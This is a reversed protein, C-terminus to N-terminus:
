FVACFHAFREPWVFLRIIQGSNLWSDGFSAPIDTGVYDLAMGSIVDGGAEPQCKDHNSTEIDFADELKRRSSYRYRKRILRRPTEGLGVKHHIKTKMVALGPNSHCWLLCFCSLYLVLVGLATSQSFTPPSNDEQESSGVSGHTTLVQPVSFNVLQHSKHFVIGSTRGSIVDMSIRASAPM